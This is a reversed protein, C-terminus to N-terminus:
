NVGSLCFLSQMKYKQDNTRFTIRRTFRISQFIHSLEEFIWYYVYRWQDNLYKRMKRWSMREKIIEMILGKFETSVLFSAIVFIISVMNRLAEYRQLSISELRFNVKIQRHFEEIKWRASYAAVMEKLAEERNVDLEFHGLFYSFGEDNGIKPGVKKMVLLWLRKDIYGKDPLSVEEIGVKYFIIKKRGYKDIKELTVGYLLPVERWEKYGVEEGRLLLDRLTQLRLVFNISKNILPKIVKRSDFGRDLILIKGRKSIISFIFDLAELLKLNSSGIYERFSYLESFLSMMEKRKKGVGLINLLRYGNGIEGTNGDRVREMNEMKKAYKKQIDCDDGVIYKMEEILKQNNALFGKITRKWLDSKGINRRLRKETHKYKKNEKLSRGINSIHVDGTKIAGVVIDKLFKVEPLSMSNRLKYFFRNVKKSIQTKNINTLNAEKKTKNYWLSARKEIGKRM